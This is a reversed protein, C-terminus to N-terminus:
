NVVIGVNCDEWAYSYLLHYGSMSSMLAASPQFLQAISPRLRRAITSAYSAWRKTQRPLLVVFSKADMEGM